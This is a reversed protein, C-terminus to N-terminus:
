KNMNTCHACAPMVSRASVAKMFAYVHICMVYFLDGGMGMVMKLRIDLFKIIDKNSACPCPPSLCFQAHPFAVSITSPGKRCPAATYAHFSTLNAKDPGLFLCEPTLEHKM